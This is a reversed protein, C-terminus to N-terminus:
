GTSLQQDLWDGVVSSGSELDFEEKAFEELLARQRDSVSSPVNVRFRVYQDGFSEVFGGPKPLGRGRLVVLQGPQVGKPIKVQMIRSLSPVDVSGGLIAQTFSIHCDVYIDAGNRQFIPDKAVKLMIYLGGPHVGRGGSNGAKPVRITDGSEIGAWYESLDLKLLDLLKITSVLPLLM